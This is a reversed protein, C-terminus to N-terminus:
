ECCSDKTKMMEEVEDLAQNAILVLEEEVTDCKRPLDELYPDAIKLLAQWM